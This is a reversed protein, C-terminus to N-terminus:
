RGRADGVYGGVELCVCGLASIMEGEREDRTSRERGDYTGSRGNMEESTVGKLM